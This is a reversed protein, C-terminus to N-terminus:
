KVWTTATDGQCGMAPGDRVLVTTTSWGNSVIWIPTADPVMCALLPALLEPRKQAVGSEILALGRKAAGGELFIPMSGHSPSCLMPKGPVVNDCDAGHAKTAKPPPPTEPESLAFEDIIRGDDGLADLHFIWGSRGAWEGDVVTVYFARNSASPDYLVVKATAQEGLDLGSDVDADESPALWITVNGKKLHIITGKPIDPHVGGYLPVYGTFRSSRIQIKALPPLKTNGSGM